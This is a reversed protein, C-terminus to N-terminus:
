RGQRVMDKFTKEALKMDLDFKIRGIRVRDLTAHDLRNRAGHLVNAGMGNTNGAFGIIFDPHREVIKGTATNAFHGNSIAANVLLILNEDGADIEDLLMVGGGAYLQEWISIVVDGKEKAEKAIRHMEELDQEAQAMMFQIMIATNNIMPRGNFSSPPTGRTMSLFGFPFKDYDEIRHGLAQRLCDAAHRYATTKGTGSGGWCLTPLRGHMKTLLLPLNAHHSENVFQLGPVDIKPKFTQPDYNWPNYEESHQPIYIGAHHWITRIAEPQWHQMIDSVIWDVPIGLTYAKAGDVFTRMGIADMTTGDGSLNRDQSFLAINKIRRLLDLADEPIDEDIMEILGSGQNLEEEKEEELLLDLEELEELKKDQDKDDEIDRQEEGRQLDNLLRKNVFDRVTSFSRHFQDNATVIDVPIREQGGGPNKTYVLPRFDGQLPLGLTVRIYRAISEYDRHSIRQSNKSKAWQYMLEAIITRKSTPRWDWHKQLYNETLGSILASVRSGKLETQIKRWDLLSNNDRSRYADLDFGLRKAEHRAVLALDALYKAQEVTAM